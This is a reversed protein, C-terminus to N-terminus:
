QEPQWYVTQRESLVRGIGGSIMHTFCLLKGSSFAHQVTEVRTQVALAPNWDFANPQEPLSIQAPHHLVDSALIADDLEFTHHGPTHGPSLYASLGDIPHKANELWELQPLLPAILREYRPADTQQLFETDARSIFYHAHPFTPKSNECTWGIHDPHTHSLLVMGIQEVGIGVQALAQPLVFEIKTSSPLHGLGTDILVNFDSRQLLFVSSHNRTRDNQLNNPELFMQPYRQRYPTWTEPPCSPFEQSLGLSHKQLTAEDTHFVPLSYLLWDQLQKRLM